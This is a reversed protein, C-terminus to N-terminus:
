LIYCKSLRRYWKRGSGSRVKDDTIVKQRNIQRVIEVFIEEVNVRNKASSETFPCKLEYNAVRAGAFKSVVREEDDLDCKNGVLVIPVDDRDRIDIIENCINQADQFSTESTISYVLVFGHAESYYRDRMGLLQESGASDWIDLLYRRGDVELWKKYTDEITPDYNSVFIGQVFQVTLASKGVGSSGLVIIKYNNTNQTM